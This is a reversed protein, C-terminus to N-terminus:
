SWGASRPPPPTPARPMTASCSATPREPLTSPCRARPPSPPSRRKADPAWRSRKRNGTSHGPGDVGERVHRGHHLDLLLRAREHGHPGDAGADLIQEEGVRARGVVDRLAHARHPRLRGPVAADVAHAHAAVDAVDHVDARGGEYLGELVRHDGDHDLLRGATSLRSARRATLPTSM